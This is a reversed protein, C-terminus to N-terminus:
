AISAIRSPIHMMDENFIAHISPATAATATSAAHARLALRARYTFKSNPMAGHFTHTTAISSTKFQCRLSFLSM